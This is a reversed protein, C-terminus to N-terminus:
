SANRRGAEALEGALDFLASRSGSGAEPPAVLSLFFDVSAVVLVILYLYFAHFYWPTEASVDKVIQVGILTALLVAGTGAVVVQATRSRMFRIRSALEPNRRALNLVSLTMLLFNVLMATVMLDIGILFDGASYSLVIGLDGDSCELRDGM